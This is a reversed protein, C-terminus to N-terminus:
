NGNKKILIRFLLFLSSGTLFAATMIILEDYLKQHYILSGGLKIGNYTFGNSSLEIYSLAVTIMIMLGIIAGVISLALLTRKGIKYEPKNKRKMYNNLYKVTM